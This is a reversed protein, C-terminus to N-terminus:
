MYTNYRVSKKEKNYKEKHQRTNARKFYYKKNEWSKPNFAKQKGNGWGGRNYALIFARFKGRFVAKDRDWLVQFTTNETIYKELSPM